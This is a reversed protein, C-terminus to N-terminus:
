IWFSRHFGVLIEDTLKRWYKTPQSVTLWANSIAMDTQFLNDKFDGSGMDFKNRPGDRKIFINM